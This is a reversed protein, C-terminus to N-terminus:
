RKGGRLEEIQEKLAILDQTARRKFEELAELRMGIVNIVLVLFALAFFPLSSM